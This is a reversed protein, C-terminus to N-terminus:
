TLKRASLPQRTLQTSAVLNESSVPPPPKAPSGVSFPTNYKVRIWERTESSEKIADMVARIYQGDEFNAALSVADKFWQNMKDTQSDQKIRNNQAITQDHHASSPMLDTSNLSSTASSYSSDGNMSNMSPHGPADSSEIGPDLSDSTSASLAISHEGNRDPKSVNSTMVGMGGVTEDGANFAHSLTSILKCLGQDYPTPLIGTLEKRGQLGQDVEECYLLDEDDENPDHKVAREKGSHSLKSNPTSDRPSYRKGFLNGNKLLLYGNTGYVKVEHCYSGRITKNLTVTALTLSKSGYLNIPRFSDRPVLEMHFQCYDYMLTDPRSFNMASMGNYLYSNASIKSPSLNPCTKAEPTLKRLIGHVRKARSNTLFSIIDIMHSGLTPLIGGGMYSDCNISYLNGLECLEDGSVTAEILTVQGIFSSSMLTRMRQCSVLFRLPHCLISILSPYYTAREVMEKMESATLAPTWDCLVHKGLNFAKSVITPHLHPPCAVVILQIEKKLILSDISETFFPIEFEEALVQVHNSHFGWIGHIPFGKSRLLPILFRALSGSGLVGVGPLMNVDVTASSTNNSM